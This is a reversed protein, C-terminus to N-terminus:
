QKVEPKTTPYALSTVIARLTAMHSDLIRRTAALQQTTKSWREQPDPTQVM